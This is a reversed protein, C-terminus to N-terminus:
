LKKYSGVKTGKECQFHNQYEVFDIDCGPGITVRNGRVVKAKTNELYIEDGEIIEANLGVNFFWKKFFTMRQIKM